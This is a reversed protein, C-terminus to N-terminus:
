LKTVKWGKGVKELWKDAAEQNDFQHFYFQQDKTVLYTPRQYCIGWVGISDYEEEVNLLSRGTLAQLQSVSVQHTM